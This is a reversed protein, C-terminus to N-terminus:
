VTKFVFSDGSAVTFETDGTTGNRAIKNSSGLRLEAIKISGVTVGVDSEFQFEDDTEDWWIAADGDTSGRNFRLSSSVGAAANDQDIIFLTNNTGAIGTLQEYRVSDGATTGAALDVIKYSGSGMDINGGVLIGSSLTLYGDYDLEAVYTDGYNEFFRLNKGSVVKMYFGTGSETDTTILGLAPSNTSADYLTIDDSNYISGYSMNITSSTGNMTIDSIGTIDNGGMAINGAMTGGALLLVQEYRVSDGSASGAGLGTLKFGGAALNETMPNSVDGGFGTSSSGVIPRADRYIYSYGSESSYIPHVVYGGGGSAKGKLIVEGLPTNLADPAVSENQADTKSAYQTGVKYSVSGTNSIQILAKKYTGTAPNSAYTWFTCVGKSKEQFVGTTDYWVGPDHRIYTDPPNNATLSLSGGLKVMEPEADVDGKTLDRIINQYDDFKEGLEIAMSDSTNINYSRIIKKIRKTTDINSHADVIRVWDGYKLDNIYMALDIRLEEIPDKKADIIAQGVSQATAVDRVMNNHYPEGEIYGIAAISTADEIFESVKDKGAGGGIVRLCNIAQSSRYKIVPITRLHQGGYLTDHPSGSSGRSKDGVRINKATVNTGGGDWTGDSWLDYGYTQCMERVIQYVKKGHLTVKSGYTDPFTVYKLIEADKTYCYTAILDDIITKGTDDDYEAETNGSSDTKSATSYGLLVLFSRGTYRVYNGSGEVDEIFGEVLIDSGRKIQIIAADIRGKAQTRESTIPNDITVEFETHGFSESVRITTVRAQTRQSGGQGIKVTWLTM